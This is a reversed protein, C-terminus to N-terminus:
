PEPNRTEPKPNRTPPTPPSGLNCALRFVLLVEPCLVNNRRPLCASFMDTRLHLSSSSTQNKQVEGGGRLGVRKSTGFDSMGRAGAVSVALFGLVGGANAAPGKLSSRKVYVDRQLFLTGKGTARLAVVLVSFKRRFVYITAEPAPDLGSCLM